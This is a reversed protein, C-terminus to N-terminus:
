NREALWREAIVVAAAADIMKRNLRGRLGRRREDVLRERAELSSYREDIVEVPLGFRGLAHGFARAADGTGSERGDAMLPLGVVLQSPRWTALLREIAPWDPGQERNAVTGVASASGTVSQGVAVGIRRGGYDFALITTSPRLAAITPLLIADPTVPM